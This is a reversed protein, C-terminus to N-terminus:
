DDALHYDQFQFREDRLVSEGAVLFLDSRFLPGGHTLTHFEGNEGCADIGDPLETLLTDDFARGCFAAGLQQTDVCVLTARHGADIFHRALRGTDEGWLPFVSNWGHERMQQERWARVDALHIDGFACHELGPWRAQTEDLAKHWSQLYAENSGPWDMEAVVLSLGLAAAQAELVDRRIGHMAVRDHRRNVTTLLGVIQWDPVDRLRELAM